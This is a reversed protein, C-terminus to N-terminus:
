PAHITTLIYFPNFIRTSIQLASNTFLEFTHVSAAYRWIEQLGFFKLFSLTSATQESTERVVLSAGPGVCLLTKSHSKVQPVAESYATFLILFVIVVQFLFAVHKKM